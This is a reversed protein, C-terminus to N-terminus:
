FSYYCGSTCAMIFLVALTADQQNKIYYISRHLIEDLPRSIYTPPHNKKHLFECMDRVFSFLHSFKLAILGELTIHWVSPGKEHGHAQVNVDKSPFTWFNLPSQPSRPYHTPTHLTWKHRESTVWCKSCRKNSRFTLKPLNNIGHLIDM